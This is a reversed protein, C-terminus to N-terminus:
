PNRQIPVQPLPRTAPGMVVRGGHAPDFVAGHAPCVLLHTKSNYNVYVGSHTCARAYAVFTGNPLRVLLGQRGDQPNTFVRATNPAQQPSPSGSGPPLAPQLWKATLLYGSGVVSAGLAGLAVGKVLRRRSIQRSRHAHLHGRPASMSYRAHSRKIRHQVPQSCSFLVPAEMPTATATHPMEWLFPTSDLLEDEQIPHRAEPETTGVTPHLPCLWCNTAVPSQEQAELGEAFAALLDSVRQFRRGPDEALARHLVRELSPLLEIDQALRMPLLHQQGERASELLSTGNRPSSGTLLEGLIVGLAYVDSRIDAAQGQYLCEPALYRQPALWTGALTLAHERPVTVPLIDRRELLQQWGLGAIQIQQGQSVLLHSLSLAGHVLGQCHAHELGATIQELMILATAPTCCGQQSLITALSRAQRVPTVLYFFGEWEGYAELPLLHPHRVEVLVPAERLFRAYFQQRARTSLVESLVLLTLMVSQNLMLQRAQYVAGLRGYGLLQEIHYDGIDQGVFQELLAGEM